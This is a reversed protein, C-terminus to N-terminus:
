AAWFGAKNLDKTLQSNEDDTLKSRLVPFIQSEEERAHAEVADRFAQVTELWQPDDAPMKSLRYLYEKVEGHDNELHSAPDADGVERIVPYLVHEEAYSHKDLAHSLQVLHLARRRTQSDDTALMTEFLDAVVQHEAALAKDWEGASASLGQVALKRGLNGAVAIAAGAVAALGLATGTSWRFVGEDNSTTQNTRERTAM